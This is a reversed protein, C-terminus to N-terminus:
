QTPSKLEVLPPICVDRTHLVATGWSMGAGFGCLLLTHEGSAVAERLRTVITLPISAGSTNGFDHVCTPFRTEPIGLRAAVGITALRNAQHLLLHDMEEITKGALSLVSRIAEPVRALIFRLVGRHRIRAHEDSRVAGDSQMREVVTDPSSPFRYGGARIGILSASSGDSCLEFVAPAADQRQSVLTATGADGFLREADPDRRSYVLSRTEGNLLLVHSMGSAALSFAMGLGYVFGSCGLPVDFAACGSPLGLRHQLLAATAPMRHDPTQSVFVLAAVCHPSVDAEELLRQAAAECLDSACQGPAVVRRSRVGSARVWRAAEVPEGGWRSADLNDVRGAPVAAAVGSIEVGVTRVVSM